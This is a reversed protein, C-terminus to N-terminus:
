MKVRKERSAMKCNFGSFRRTEERFSNLVTLFVLSEYEGGPIRKRRM